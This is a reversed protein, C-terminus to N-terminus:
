SLLDRRVVAQGCATCFAAGRRLRSGCRTCFQVVEAATGAERRTRDARRRPGGAAIAAARPSERRRVFLFAALGMLALGGAVLLLAYESGGGGAATAPTSQPSLSPLMDAKQYAVDFTITQGAAVNSYEFRHYSFGQKDALVAAAAPTVTFGSSRLPQQIEVLLSDVPGPAVVKYTFQRREASGPLPNYYFEVHTNKKGTQYSVGPNDGTTLRYAVQTHQGSQDIECASNVTLGAPLVLNLTAPLAVGDALEGEYNVFVGPQDYEPYISVVLRKFRPGEQAAAGVVLVALLAAALLGPLALRSLAFRLLANVGERSGAM